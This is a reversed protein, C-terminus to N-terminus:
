SAKLNRNEATLLRNAEFVICFTGGTLLILKGFLM